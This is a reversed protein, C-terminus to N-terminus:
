LSKKLVADVLVATSDILPVNASTIALPLETCGLIIAEAGQDILSHVIADLRPQQITGSKIGQKGYIVDMLIAQDKMEPEILKISKESLPLDYLKAARTGDTALLGVKKYGNLSHTVEEIMNVIPTSTSAQIEDYWAHGTNCPLCLLEAGAKVLNHATQILAPAPSPGNALLAKTRDPIQSYCDVLVHPYEQDALAKSAQLLKQFFDATALPGVGGIIGITKQKTM